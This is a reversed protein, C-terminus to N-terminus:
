SATAHKNGKFISAKEFRWTFYARRNGVVRLLNGGGFENDITGEVEYIKGPELGGVQTSPVVYKVKDGVKFM